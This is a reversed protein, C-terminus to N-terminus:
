FGFRLPFASCRLTRAARKFALVLRRVSVVYVSKRIRAVCPRAPEGLLRGEVGVCLGGPFRRSVANKLLFDRHVSRDDHVSVVNCRGRGRADLRRPSVQVKECASVRRVRELRVVVRVRSAGVGGPHRPHHVPSQIVGPRRQDCRWCFPAAIATVMASVSPRPRLDALMTRGRATQISASM